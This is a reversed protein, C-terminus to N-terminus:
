GLVLKRVIEELTIEVHERCVGGQFFVAYPHRVPADATLELSAGQIFTGAAMIINGDYGPLPAPVPRVYSDIPSSAQVAQCFVEIKCPDGLSIAQVIDSRTERSGPSVPFGLEEFVRATLIAGCLAEGVVHPAQFLGQFILRQGTITPGLEKGLGPATIYDAVAEILQSSGVIYGGCPALTGGPNKILSGAMLDAGLQSPESEEVFEGYCNDVFCITNENIQKIAQFARQIEAVSLAKRESYGRSRQVIVMKPAPQKELSTRIAQIDFRSQPTLDVEEYIIGKEILSRRTEGRIGIVRGLTDYPSGSLSVLRDGPALLASLCASIAHTGSVIQPRVLAAETGFVDAYVNELADRGLDNYGYGTTGAFHEESVRHHQFAKLVKRMNHLVIENVAEWYPKVQQRCTKVLATANM